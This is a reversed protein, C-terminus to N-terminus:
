LDAFHDLPSAPGEPAVGQRAAELRKKKEKKAERAIQAHKQATERLQPALTEHKRFMDFVPVVYDQFAAELEKRSAFRIDKTDSFRKLGCVDAIDNLVQRKERWPVDPNDWLERFKEKLGPLTFIRSKEEEPKRHIELDDPHVGASRMGAEAIFGEADQWNYCEARKERVEASLEKDGPSEDEKTNM